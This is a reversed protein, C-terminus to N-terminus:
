NLQANFFYLRSVSWNHKLQSLKGFFVMFATRNRLSALGGPGHHAARSIEFPNPRDAGSPEYM